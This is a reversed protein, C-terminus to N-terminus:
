QEEKIRRTEQVGRKSAGERVGVDRKRPENYMHEIIM